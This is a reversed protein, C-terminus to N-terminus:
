ERHFLYDAMRDVYEVESLSYALTRDSAVAAPIQYAGGGGEVLLRGLVLSAEEDRRAEYVKRVRWLDPRLHECSLLAEM